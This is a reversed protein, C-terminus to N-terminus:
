TSVGLEIQPIWTGSEEDFADVRPPTADVVHCWSGTIVHEKPRTDTPATDSEACALELYYKEGDYNEKVIERIM